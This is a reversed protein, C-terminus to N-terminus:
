KQPSYLVIVDGDMNSLVIHHEDIPAVANIVSVGIKYKWMVELEQKGIAFVLGNKTGFYIIDNKEQPMSPNIDYGFKCDIGRLLEEENTKSNFIFLSDNMGKAYIYEGNNSIGISERVQHRNSRWVTEGTVADIATIIRDPAVIFIKGETAVPWCAAPSFLFGASGQWKWALLGDKLNLAYLYSDWAGFIVKNEYILPKAEVFEGIGKYEWILKGNELEIARFKGDGGGIYVVNQYIKPVAVIASQTKYKWCLKGTSEDLCYIYQDNSGFVIKGNSVDPSSYIAASTKFKWKLKGDTLRLCYVYGSGSTVIVNEDSIVPATTMTFNTKYTWKIKIHPYISNSTFDPRPYKNKELSYDIKKLSRKYWLHNTTAGPIRELIFVSDQSVDVLNYGGSNEKARLNSRGMIGPIGEFSSYQNAHGHGCLVAMTNYLKLRDTVEFWNDISTDLPYHTVFIIPQNKNKVKYLTSDLWRLDEPSFHGDGMKMIPGQHMGIFLFDKHNFVFKDNGFIESFKTCGSESWKTDHNGPIIYYPKNLHDLQEKAKQLDSTKGTETIDGSLVIFDIDSLTNIDHLSNNLDTEGTVSGVHTDTLWAFRFQQSFVSTYGYLFILIFPLLVSQPKTNLM